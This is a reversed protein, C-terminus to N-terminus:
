PLPASWFKQLLERERSSLIVGRPRIIEEVSQFPVQNRVAEEIRQRDHCSLCRTELIDQYAQYEEFGVTSVEVEAGTRAGRDKLAQGWFTGLVKRDRETIVAGRQLMQEEIRQLNRRERIALDVRDRTHCVTCRTDIVRQFEDVEPLRVAGLHESPATALATAALSLLFLLSLAARSM